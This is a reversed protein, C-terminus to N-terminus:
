SDRETDIYIYRNKEKKSKVKQKIQNNWIGNKEIRAM